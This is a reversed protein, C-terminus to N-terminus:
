RQSTTEQLTTPIAKELHPLVARLGTAALDLEIDLGNMGGLIAVANARTKLREALEEWNKVPEVM